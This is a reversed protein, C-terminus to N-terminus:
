CRLMARLVATLSKKPQESTLTQYEEDTANKLKDETWGPPLYTLPNTLNKTAPDIAQQSPQSREGHGGQVPKAPRTFRKADMEAETCCCSSRHSEPTTRWHSVVLGSSHCEQATGRDLRTTSIVLSSKGHNLISSPIAHLLLPPPDSGWDLQHLDQRPM